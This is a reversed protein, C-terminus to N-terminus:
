KERKHNQNMGKNKKKEMERMKSLFEEYLEDGEIENSYSRDLNHIGNSKDNRNFKDPLQYLSRRLQVLPIHNKEPLENLSIFEPVELAPEQQTPFCKPSIEKDEFEPGMVRKKRSGIRMSSAQPSNRRLVTHRFHSNSLFNSASNPENLSKFTSKKQLLPKGLFKPNMSRPVIPMLEEKIEPDTKLFDM